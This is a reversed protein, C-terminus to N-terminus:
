PAATNAGTTWRRGLRAALWAMPLYAAALDIAMSWAPAPIMFCAAIGRGSFPVLGHTVARSGADGGSSSERPEILSLGGGDRAVWVRGQKDVHVDNVKNVEREEGGSEAQLFQRVSRTPLDYYLVGFGFTGIWLNGM